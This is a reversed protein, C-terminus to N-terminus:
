LKKLQVQSIKAANFWDNLISNFYNLVRRMVWAPVNCHKSVSIQPGDLTKLM